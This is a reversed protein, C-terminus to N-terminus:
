VYPSTTSLEPIKRSAASGQRTSGGACDNTILAELDLRSAETGIEVDSGRAGPALAQEIVESAM